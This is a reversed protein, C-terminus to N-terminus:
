AKFGRGHKFDEYLQEHRDPSLLIGGVKIWADMGPKGGGKAAVIVAVGLSWYGVTEPETGEDGHYAEVTPTIGAPMWIIIAASDFDISM